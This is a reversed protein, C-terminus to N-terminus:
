NSQCFPWIVAPLSSSGVMSSSTGPSYLSAADIVLGPDSARMMFYGAANMCRASRSARLCARGAHNPLRRFYFECAASDRVEGSARLRELQRFYIRESRIRRLFTIPTDRTASIQSKSWSKASGRPLPDALVAALAGPSGLLSRFFPIGCGAGEREDRGTPLSTLSAAM